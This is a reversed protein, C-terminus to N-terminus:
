RPVTVSSPSFTTPWLRDTFLEERRLREGSARSTTRMAPDNRIGAVASRPAVVEPSNPPLGTSVSSTTFHTCPSCWHRVPKRNSGSLFSFVPEVGGSTSRHTRM